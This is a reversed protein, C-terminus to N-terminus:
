AYDGDIILDTAPKGQLLNFSYSLFQCGPLVREPLQRIKLANDESISGFDIDIGNCTKNANLVDHLDSLSVGSASPQPTPSASLSAAIYILTILAGMMMTSLLILVWKISKLNANGTSEDKWKQVANTREENSASTKLPSMEIAKTEEAM